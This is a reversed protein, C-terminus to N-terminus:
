RAAVLTSVIDELLNLGGSFGAYARNVILRNSIPFSVNLSKAGINSSLEKELSSGLVFLPSVPNFYRDAVYRPLSVLAKRAIQSADTEFILETESNQGMARWARTLAEMQADSLDDTIYIQRVLWGLEESVYRAMPLAGNANAIILAYFQFDGDTYIDLAKDIYAYYLTNERAIVRNTRAEDLNLLSATERIFRKAAEAGIPLDCIYYPIGHSEKIKEAAEVGYTRSFVINLAASGAEKIASFEQRNSFFTNTRIGL